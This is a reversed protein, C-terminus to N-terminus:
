SSSKCVSDLVTAVVQEIGQGTTDVVVADSAVRLPDVARSSDKRDRRKLSEHVRELSHGPEEPLEAKRRRAREEPSADIYFKHRAAPFVVTGIDRGEMVIDRSESMERLWEVMQRRIGPQAAVDSVHENVSDGRLENGPDRGNLRFKVSEGEAYFEIDLERILRLLAAEDRTDVKNQLALWTVGRYLAGSDVYYYGLEKAVGRAVTSKGSASPGDIAIRDNM